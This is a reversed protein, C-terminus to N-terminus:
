TVDIQNYVIYMISQCFDVELGGPHFKMKGNSLHSIEVSVARVVVTTLIILGGRDQQFLFISIQGLSILGHLPPIGIDLCMSM